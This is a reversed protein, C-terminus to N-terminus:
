KRFAKLMIIVRVGGGRMNRIDLSGGHLDIIKKSVPLGLGTGVGTPKTTFFPDFIKALNEEAIGTGTDEVEAIVATQGMWLRDANRSGEFHTTETLQKVSTRLTLTGGEPMAQIANVFVNLFVQKIQIKDASVLPLNQGWDKILKVQNKSIEHRVLLLTDDILQNLDEAKLALQRALDSSCM